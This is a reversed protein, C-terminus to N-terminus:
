RGVLSQAESAADGAGDEVRHQDGLELLEVGADDVVLLGFIDTVAEDAHPGGDLAVEVGPLVELAELRDEDLGLLPLAVDAEEVRRGTSALVKWTVSSNVKVLPVGGSMRASTTKRTLPMGTITTSVFAAVLTSPM